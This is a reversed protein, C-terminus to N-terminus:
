PTDLRPARGQGGVPSGKAPVRRARDDLEARLHGAYRVCWYGIRLAAAEAAELDDAVLEVSTDGDSVVLALAVRDGSLVEDLRARTRGADLEVALV